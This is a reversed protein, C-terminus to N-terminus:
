MPTAWKWSMTLWSMRPKWTLTIVTRKRRPKEKELIRYHVEYISIPAKVPDQHGRTIGDMDPMLEMQLRSIDATVSATGPRYEASFAYPDAKFLITDGHIRPSPM